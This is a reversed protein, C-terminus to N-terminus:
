EQPLLLSGFDTWAENKPVKDTKKKLQKIFHRNLLNEHSCLRAIKFPHYIKQWLIKGFNLMTKLSVNEESWLKKRSIKSKARGQTLQKYFQRPIRSMRADRNQFPRMNKVVSSALINTLIEERASTECKQFPRAWSKGWWNKQALISMTKTVVNRKFHVANHWSLYFFFTVFIDGKVNLTRM